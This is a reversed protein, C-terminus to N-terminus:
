FLTTVIGVSVGTSLGNSPWFDKKQWQNGVMVELTLATREGIYYELGATVRTAFARGNRESVLLVTGEQELEPISYFNWGAQLLVLSRVKKNGFRYGAGGLLYNMGVNGAIVQTTERDEFEFRGQANDYNLRFFVDNNNRIRYELSTRTILGGSLQPTANWQYGIDISPMFTHNAFSSEEEPTQASIPAFLGIILFLCVLFRLVPATLQNIM